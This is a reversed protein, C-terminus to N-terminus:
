VSILVPRLPIRSLTEGGGGGGGGGWFFFALSALINKVKSNANKVKLVTKM